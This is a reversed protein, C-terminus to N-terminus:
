FDGTPPKMKLVVWERKQKCVYKPLAPTGEGAKMGPSGVRLHGWEPSLSPPVRLSQGEGGLSGEWGTLGGGSGEM